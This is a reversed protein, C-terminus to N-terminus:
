LNWYMIIMVVVKPNNRLNATESLTQERQGRLSQILYMLVLVFPLSLVHEQSCYQHSAYLCSHNKSFNTIVDLLLPRKLSQNEIITQSVETMNNKRGTRSTTRSIWFRKLSSFALWIILVTHQLMGPMGSSREEPPSVTPFSVTVELVFHGM